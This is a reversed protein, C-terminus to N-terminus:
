DLLSLMFAITFQDVEEEENDNSNACPHKKVQPYRRSKAEKDEKKMLSYQALTEVRNYFGAEEVWKGNRNERGRTMTWLLRAGRKERGQAGEKMRSIRDRM